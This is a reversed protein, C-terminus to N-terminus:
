TILIINNNMISVNSKGSFKPEAVGIPDGVSSSYSRGQNGMLGEGGRRASFSSMPASDQLISNASQIGENLLEEEDEESLGDRLVDSLRSLESRHNDQHAFRSREFAHRNIYLAGSQFMNSADFGCRFDDPTGCDFM